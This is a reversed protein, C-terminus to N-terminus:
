NAKQKSKDNLAVDLDVLVKTLGAHLKKIAEERSEAQINFSYTIGEYPGITFAFVTHSNIEFM